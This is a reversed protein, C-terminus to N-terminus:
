RKKRPSSRSGVGEAALVQQEAYVLKKAEVETLEERVPSYLEIVRAYDKAHWAAEAKRRLDQLCVQKEYEVAAQSRIVEVARYANADPRLFPVGYKELLCALKPVFEKIGERSSVQFMVHKGFGEIEKAGALAVMDYLTMKLSPEALRGVEVGLEFSARGHYVNVFVKASEYRVFTTKKEIARLGFEGLFKFSSLVADKFGLKTREPSPEESLM